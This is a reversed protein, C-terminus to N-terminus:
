ELSPGTKEKILKELEKKKEEIATELQEIVLMQQPRVSHAPLSAERDRLQAELEQIEKELAEERDM